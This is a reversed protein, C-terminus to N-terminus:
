FIGTIPNSSGPGLKDKDKGSFHRYMAYLLLVLYYIAGIVAMFFLIVSIALIM